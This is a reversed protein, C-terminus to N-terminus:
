SGPAAIPLLTASPAPLRDQRALIELGAANVDRRALRGNEYYAWLDPLGDGNLDREEKTIIEGDRSTDYFIWVDPRGSGGSDREVKALRGNQYTARYTIIGQGSEDREERAIKDNDFYFVTDPRGHGKTDIDRRVLQGDKFYSWTDVLGDGKTAEEQRVIEGPNKPNYYIWLDPAGDGNIDRVEVNRFPSSAPKPPYSASKGLSALTAIDQSQNGSAAGSALTPLTQADHAGMAAPANDGIAAALQNDLGSQRALEQEIAAELQQDKLQESIIQDNIATYHSDATLLGTLLGIVLGGGAGYPGAITGGMAIGEMAKNWAYQWRQSGTVQRAQPAAASNANVQTPYQASGPPYQVPVPECSALAAAFVLFAFAFRRNM